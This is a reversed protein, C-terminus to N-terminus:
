HGGRDDDCGGHDNDDGHEGRDDHGDGKGASGKTNVEHTGLLRMSGAVPTYVEVQYSHTGKATVFNLHYQKGPIAYDPPNPSGTGYHYITPTSTSGNRFVEYIAILVDTDRVFKNQCTLTFKIPVTSGGEVTRNNSLPPLWTLDECIEKQIQTVNFSTSATAVTAGSSTLSVTLTHSGGSGFSMAGTGSVAATGLGTVTPAPSIPTGDLTVSVGAISGYTTGGSFSYNVVTAPDGASRTFTSGDTPSLISVTPAPVVGSVSFPVTVPTAAGFANSASFVLSHNGALPVTLTASGNATTATGVGSTNLAVPLGDLTAALGTINGYISTASFSVPVSAGLGGLIYSFAANSTPSSVAISPPPADVNVKIRASAYSIGITSTNGAAVTVTYDGPATLAVSGTATASRAPLPGRTLSIPIINVGDTISAQMTEIPADTALVSADFNVTFSVPNGTAPQYTYVAGDAPSNLTVSPPNNTATAVATANVFAGADNASTVVPPWGSPLIHYKYDGAYNGVPVDVHVTFSQKDNPGGFTLTAPSLSIFSLAEADTVGTSPKALLSVDLNVTVPVGVALTSPATVTIVYSTSLPQDGQVTNTAPNYVVNVSPSAWCVAASM